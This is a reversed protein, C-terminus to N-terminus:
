GSSTRSSTSTPAVPVQRRYDAVTRVAAFHHDQGFGTARQRDLIDMLLDTQVAEPDACDAEFRAIKRRIPLAALRGARRLLFRAVSM